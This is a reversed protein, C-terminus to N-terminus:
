APLELADRALALDSFPLRAGAIEQYPEHGKGALLIVDDASAERVARRIAAARDPEVAPRQKMGAVIAEIIALPDEDRPNDSTLLVRDALKEAIAGMQPRKGPDREGGCGFLCILRGHRATAAHRLATLAKDLADPTHAYDVVMLPRGDGGISQMRGLPPEIARLVGAIDALTEDGALLAGITALLNAINFRGVVPAEIRVGDLTFALGAGTMTVDRAALVRDGGVHGELTYGITAVHGSLKRALRAGFADDLNVVAANLGPWGFLREKAAAYAAMSGHYDLHDRTLNTFVAVDFGAGNVRGEAIGISSVEMACAVAGQAVFGALQRHLSVADPTTNMSETLQGPFGGGLTGIVACKCGLMTLAQAIWQSVSTKGNTGTVAAMWLHDSPKGYVAHALDGAAAALGDVALAPVPLALPAGAQYIVAAAGRAVADAAFARGDVHHGPMAIFVDGPKVQRSDIALATPKVGLRALEGLIAASM